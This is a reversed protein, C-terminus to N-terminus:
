KTRRAQIFGFILAVAVVIAFTVLMVTVDRTPSM